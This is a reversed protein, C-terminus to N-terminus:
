YKKARSKIIKKGKRSLGSVTGKPKKKVAKKKGNGYAM